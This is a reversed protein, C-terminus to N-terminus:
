GCFVLCMGLNIVSLIRVFSAFTAPWPVDLGVAINSIIQLFGLMIKAKWTFDNISSTQHSELAEDLVPKTGGAADERLGLLEEVSSAVKEVGSEVEDYVEHAKGGIPEDDASARYSTIMPRLKTRQEQYQLQLERDEDIDEQSMHQREEQTEALYEEHQLEMSVSGRHRRAPPAKPKLKQLLKILIKWSHKEVPDMTARDKANKARIMALKIDTTKEEALALAEADGEKVENLLEYSSRLLAYMLMVMVFVVVCGVLVFYVISLSETPCPQCIGSSDKITGPVCVSCLPGSHFKICMTRQPGSFALATGNVAITTANVGQQPDDLMGLSAFLVFVVIVCV